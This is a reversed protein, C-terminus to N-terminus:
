LFNNKKLAEAYARNINDIAHVARNNKFGVNERCYNEYLTIDDNLQDFFEQSHAHGHRLEDSAALIRIRANIAQTKDINSHMDAIKNEVRAIESKMTESLEEIQDHIQTLVGKKNDHRTIMFQVFTFLAGSGIVALTISVYIETTM